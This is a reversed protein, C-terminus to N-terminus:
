ALGHHEALYSDIEQSANNRTREVWDPSLLLFEKSTFEHEAFRNIKPQPQIGSNSYTIRLEIFYTASLVSFHKETSNRIFEKASYLFASDECRYFFFVRQENKDDLYKVEFLDNYTVNVSM